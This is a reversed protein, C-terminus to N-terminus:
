IRDGVQAPGAHGGPASGHRHLRAHRTHPVLRTCCRRHSSPIWCSTAVQENERMQLAWEFLKPQAAKLRRALDITARVDVLADHAGQHAIGNASCLDELRFSPKGPEHMPWEIGEPRLAYCMRALDILDWRSNGNRYEREYPDRFNRYLLNRTVTDDFRISNYGASCTGPKRCKM